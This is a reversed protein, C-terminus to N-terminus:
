ITSRKVRLRDGVSSCHPGDPGGLGVTLPEEQLTELM